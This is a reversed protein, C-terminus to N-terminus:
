QPSQQLQEPNPPLPGTRLNILQVDWEKGNVDNFSLRVKTRGSSIKDDPINPFVFEMWGVVAGGTPIPIAEARRPWYDAGQFIIPAEYQYGHVTLNGTPEPPIPIEGQVEGYGLDLYLHWNNVISPAGTNLIGGQIIVEMTAQNPSSQAVMMKFNGHLNPLTLTDLKKQLNLRQQHESIWFWVSAIIFTIFICRWFLRTDRAKEPNKILVVERFLSFIGSMLSVMLLAIQFWSLYSFFSYM